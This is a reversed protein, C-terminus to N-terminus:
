GLKLNLKLAVNALYQAERYQKAFRSGVICITHIGAKVDGIHKIRNYLATDSAPLVVLLLKLPGAAGKIKADLEEDDSGRIM